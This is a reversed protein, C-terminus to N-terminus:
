TRSPPARCPLTSAKTRAQVSRCTRLAHSAPGTRRCALNVWRRVANVPTSGPRIRNRIAAIAV